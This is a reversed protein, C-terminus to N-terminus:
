YLWNHKPVLELIYVKFGLPTCFRYFLGRLKCYMAGFLSDQIKELSIKVSNVVVAQNGQGRVM